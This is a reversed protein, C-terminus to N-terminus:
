EHLLCVLQIEALASPKLSENGEIQVVIGTILVVCM